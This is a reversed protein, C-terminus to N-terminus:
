QGQGLSYGPQGDFTCLEIDLKAGAADLARLTAEMIEPGIGDGYAVTVATKARKDESENVLLSEPHAAQTETLM